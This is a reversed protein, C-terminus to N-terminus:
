QVKQTNQSGRPMDIPNQCLGSSSGGLETSMAQFIAAIQMILLSLVMSPSSPFQFVLSAQGHQPKGGKVKECHSIEAEIETSSIFHLLIWTLKTM